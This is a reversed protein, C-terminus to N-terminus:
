NFLPGEIDENWLYLLASSHLLSALLKFIHFNPSSSTFGTNPFPLVICGRGLDLVPSM